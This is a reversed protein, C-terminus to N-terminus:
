KELKQYIKSILGRCSTCNTLFDKQMRDGATTSSHHHGKGKLLRGSDHPGM